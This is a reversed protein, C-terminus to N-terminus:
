RRGLGFVNARAGLVGLLVGTGVQGSGDGIGIFREAAGLVGGTQFGQRLPGGATAFGGGFRSSQFGRGQFQSFQQGGYGYGSFQQQRFQFQRFQQQRPVYVPAFQVPAAYSQRIFTQQRIIRVSPAAYVPAFQVPAAYSQSYAFSSATGCGGVAAYGPAALTRCDGAKVTPLMGFLFAALVLLILRM